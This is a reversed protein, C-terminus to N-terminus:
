ISGIFLKCAQCNKKKHQHNQMFIKFYSLDLNAKKRNKSRSRCYEDLITGYIKKWNKKKKQPAKPQSKSRPNSPNKPPLAEGSVQSQFLPGPKPTPTKERSKKVQRPVPSRSKVKKAAIPTPQRVPHVTKDICKSSNRISAKISAKRTKIKKPPKVTMVPTPPNSIKRILPTKPKPKVTQRQYVSKKSNESRSRSKARNPTVNEKESCRFSRIRKKSVEKKKLISKSKSKIKSKSRDKQQNKQHMPTAIKGVYFRKKSSRNSRERERQEQHRLYEFNIQGEFIISKSNGKVNTEDDRKKIIRPSSRRINKESCEESPKNISLSKLIGESQKSEQQHTHKIPSIWRLNFSGTSDEGKVVRPNLDLLRPTTLETEKEKEISERPIFLMNSDLRRSNFTHFNEEIEERSTDKILSLSIKTAGIERVNILFRTFYYKMDLIKNSEMRNVITRIFWRKNVELIRRSRSEISSIKRKSSSGMSLRGRATSNETAQLPAKVPTSPKMAGKIKQFSFALYRLHDNVYHIPHYIWWDVLSFMNWIILRRELTDLVSLLRKRHFRVICKAIKDLGVKKNSNPEKTLVFEVNEDKSRPPHVNFKGSLTFLEVPELLEDDEDLQVVKRSKDSSLEQNQHTKTLKFDSDLLLKTTGKKKLIEENGSTNHRSPTFNFTTSNLKSDITEFIGTDGACENLDLFTIGFKEIKQSVIQFLRMAYSTNFSFTPFHIKLNRNKIGEVEAIKDKIAADDRSRNTNGGRSNYETNYGKQIRILREKAYLSIDETIDHDEFKYNVSDYSQTPWLSHFTDLLRDFAFVPDSNFKDIFSDSEDKSKGSLLEKKLFTDLSYDSERNYAITIQRFLEEYYTMIAVKSHFVHGEFDNTYEVITDKLRYLLDISDALDQNTNEPKLDSNKIIEIFRTLFAFREMILAFTMQPRSLRNENAKSIYSNELFKRFHAKKQPNARDENSSIELIFEEIVLTDIELLYLFPILTLSLQVFIEEHCSRIELSIDLDDLKELNPFVVLIIRRHNPHNTLPNKAISLKKLLPKNSIKMLENVSRIKNFSLDLDELYGLSTIGELSYILNHSLNLLKIRRLLPPLEGITEIDKYSVTLQNLSTEQIDKIEDALARTM